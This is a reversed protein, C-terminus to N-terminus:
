SVAEDAGASRVAAGPLPVRACVRSGDAGSVIELTGGLLFVREHMGGLGFGGSVARPDFGIGDDAVEVLLAEDDSRVRLSVHTAQSHKVINTLAEQIVRYVATDLSDASPGTQDLWDPLELEVDIELGDERRRDVLAALAAALGLSDLTSPRLDAIIARLNAIEADIDEIAQGTVERYVTPDDRRLAGSLGVRLGALAQLTQDHLERAWRAREADAAEVAARLRDARVSRSVAVANAASAAFTRMLREDADTFPGGSAGRDFASLAGLADGAHVIPVILATRAAPVGLLEPDMRLHRKADSIREGIRRELVAGATSTAIPIRRGLVQSVHGAAAAVVLDSGDRLLVLVTRAEILARGRKAVLELIGELDSSAGDSGIADAIDRAAELGQVAQELALRRQESREYARANDIATAAVDALLMVAQQDEATFEPAGQKDALYLNGWVEGRIQIPVGLFSDMRPHGSPFGYSRPHTAVHALRLPEPHEILVGLVGRGRPLGGIKQQQKADIGQSLFRALATRQENLVGLAVYRAGTLERAQTMIQELVAEPDLETVLSRGIEFLRRLIDSESKM